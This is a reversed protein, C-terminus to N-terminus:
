AAPDPAAALEAHEPDRNIRRWCLRVGCVTALVLPLVCGRLLLRLWLGAEPAFRWITPEDPVYEIDPLERGPELSEWSARDVQRQMLWFRGERDRFEIFLWYHRSEVGGESYTRRIEKERVVGSKTRVGERNLRLEVLGFHVAAALWLITFLMLPALAFIGMGRLYRVAATTPRNDLDASRGGRSEGITRAVGSLALPILFILLVLFAVAGLPGSALVNWDEPLDHPM